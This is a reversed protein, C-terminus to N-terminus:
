IWYKSWNIEELAGSKIIFLMYYYMAPTILLFGDFRDLVGGHGPFFIGSDKAFGARKVLSEFVDGIVGLIGILLGLVFYHMYHIPPLKMWPVIDRSLYFLTSLSLAFFIEAIIGEWSKNPSIQTVKHSGFRSGVYYAAADGIWSVCLAMTAYGGGYEENM